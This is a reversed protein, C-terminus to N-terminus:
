HLLQIILVHLDNISLFLFNLNCMEGDFYPCAFCMAIKYCEFEERNDGSGVVITLDPPAARIRGPTEGHKLTEMRPIMRSYRIEVARSMTKIPRKRSTEKSRAM